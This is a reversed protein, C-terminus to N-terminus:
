WVGYDNDQHQGKHGSRKICPSGRDVGKTAAEDLCFPYSTRMVPALNEEVVRIVVSAVSARAEPLLAGPWVSNDFETLAQVVKTPVTRGDSFVMENPDAKVPMESQPPNSRAPPATTSEVGERRALSQAIQELHDEILHLSRAKQMQVEEPSYGELDLPQYNESVM